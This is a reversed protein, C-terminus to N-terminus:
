DGATTEVAHVSEPFEYKKVTGNEIKINAQSRWTKLMQQKIRSDATDMLTRRIGPSVQNLKKDTKRNVLKVIHYGWETKFPASVEGVELANARKFFEPGLEEESIYSLDYAVERIEKEGPYYKLAMEKFDAGAIISDRIIAARASDEFIIHQVHLPKKEKYYEDYHENFYREIEEETPQYQLDRMLNKVKVSAENRSLDRKAEVAKPDDYYGLTMGAARLLYNVAMENLLNKKDDITWETINNMAMYRPFSKQLIKEFVTDIENVIMVWDYPDLLSDPQGLIEENYTYGASAKLSDVFKDALEKELERKISSKIELYLEEDLERLGEPKHDEKKIIHYGFKTKVPGVIDGVNAAFAASDFEPVMMGRGFYGLDGGKQNNTRDQSYKVVLSDWNEGSRAKDLVARARKETEGYNQEIISKKKAETKAGATDPPPTKILIHSAKVQEPNMYTEPHEEYYKVAALSDVKVNASIEKDYMLRLVINTVDLLRREAFERDSDLTLVTSDIRIDILANNILSDLLRRKLKEVDTTDTIIISLQEAISDMQAATIIKGDVEALIMSSKDTEGSKFICSASLILIITAISGIRVM